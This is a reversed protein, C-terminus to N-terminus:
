SKTCNIAVFFTPTHCCIKGGGTKQQKQIRSGFVVFTKGKWRKSLPINVVKEFWFTIFLYSPTLESVKSLILCARERLSPGLKLAQKTAMAFYILGRAPKARQFYPFVTDFTMSHCLARYKVVCMLSSLFVTKKSSTPLPSIVEEGGHLGEAENRGLDHLDSRLHGSFLLLLRLSFVM